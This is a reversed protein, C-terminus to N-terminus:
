RLDIIEASPYNKPNFIFVQDSQKKEKFDSITITSWTTEQLMKIQSPIFTTKNITIYLEQINKNKNLATMHINYNQKNTNVTLKYGSKYMNIFTYPNMMQQQAQTPNTINVEDTKKIYTWQTKGNFWVIAESTQAKFKNGKVTIIGSTSGKTNSLTFKACAGGKRNLRNATKNMIERAKTENQALSCVSFITCLILFISIKKMNM